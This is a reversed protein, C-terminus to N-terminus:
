AHYATKYRCFGLKVLGVITWWLGFTLDALSEGTLIFDFKSLM